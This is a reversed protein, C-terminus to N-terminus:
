EGHLVQGERMAWNIVHNKTDRWTDYEATDYLLVDYPLGFEPLSRRIAAVRRRRSRGPGFPERDIVLLDIDSDRTPRGTAQSGFLVIQEARATTLIARAIARREDGTLLRM